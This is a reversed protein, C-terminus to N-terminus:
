YKIKLYLQYTVVLLFIYNMIAVPMSWIIIGYATWFISGIVTAIIMWVSVDDVSKTQHSKIVQPIFSIMILFGGVYGILEGLM